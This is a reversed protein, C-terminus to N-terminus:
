YVGYVLKKSFSQYGLNLWNWSITSGNITVYIPNIELTSAIDSAVVPMLYYWPTGQLLKSDTVSGPSTGTIITNFYRTISETYDLILVGNENFCQLGQRQAM